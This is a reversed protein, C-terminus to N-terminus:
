STLWKRWVCGDDLTIGPAPELISATADLPTAGQAHYFAAAMSTESLVRGSSFFLEAAFGCRAHQVAPADLAVVHKAHRGIFEIGFLARVTV